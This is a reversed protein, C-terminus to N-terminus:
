GIIAGIEGLAGAVVVGGDFHFSGLRVPAAQGVFKSGHFMDAAARRFRRLRLQIASTWNSAAM